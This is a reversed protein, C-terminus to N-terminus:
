FRRVYSLGYTDAEGSASGRFDRRTYDARLGNQGDLYYNAGVGYNVSETSASDSVGAVETQIRTTGYGVRGFVDFRDTVPLTAVGYAAVDFKEETTGTVAGVTVDDDNVGVSGEAEVGFYRHLRAGVRGTVAGLDTDDGKLQTYGLTGYYQPSSISQAMAPAAIVTLAASALLLSRMKKFEKSTTVEETVLGM